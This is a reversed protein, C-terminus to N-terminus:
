HTHTPAPAFALPTCRAVARELLNGHAVAHRADETRVAFPTFVMPIGPAGAPTRLRVTPDRDRPIWDTLGPHDDVLAAAVAGLVQRTELELSEPRDLRTALLGACPCADADDTSRAACVISMADTPVPGALEGAAQLALASLACLMPAESVPVGPTAVAAFPHDYEDASVAVRASRVATRVRHALLAAREATCGDDALFYQEPNPMAVVAGTALVAWWADDDVPRGQGYAYAHATKCLAGAVLTLSQWADAAGARAVVIGDAHDFRFPQTM